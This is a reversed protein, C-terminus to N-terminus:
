FACTAFAVGVQKIYTYGHRQLTAIVEPVRSVDVVFEAQLPYTERFSGDFKVFPMWQLYPDFNETLLHVRAFRGRSAIQFSPVGPAQSRLNM